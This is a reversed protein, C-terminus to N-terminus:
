QHVSIGDQDPLPEVKLSVCEIHDDESELVIYNRSAARRTRTAETLASQL